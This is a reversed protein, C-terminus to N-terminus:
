LLGVGDGREGPLDGRGYINKKSSKFFFYMYQFHLFFDIKPGNKPVMFNTIIVQKMQGYYMSSIEFEHRDMIHYSQVRTHKPGLCIQAHFHLM